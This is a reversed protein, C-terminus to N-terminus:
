ETRYQCFTSAPFGMVNRVRNRMQRINPVGMHSTTRPSSPIEVLLDRYGQFNSLASLVIGYPM